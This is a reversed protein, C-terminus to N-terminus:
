SGVVSKLGSYLAIAGSFLPALTTAVQLLGSSLQELKLKGSEDKQLLLLVGSKIGAANAQSAQWRAFSASVLHGTLFALSISLAYELTERWERLNQPAWPVSDIYHSVWLMSSVSAAGIVVGMLGFIWARGSAGRAAWFGMLVPIFFTLVRFFILPTDYVFLLVWHVLSLAAVTIFPALWLRHESSAAQPVDAVPLPTDIKSAAEALTRNLPTHQIRELAAALRAMEEQVKGLRQELAHVQQLIPKFLGLDRTCHKCAQAQPAIDGLCYPCPVTTTSM